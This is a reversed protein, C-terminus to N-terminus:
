ISSSDMHVKILTSSNTSGIHGHEFWEFEIRRIQVGQRMCEEALERFAAHIAGDVYVKLELGKKSM